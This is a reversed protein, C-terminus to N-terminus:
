FLITDKLRDQILYPKSKNPDLVDHILDYKTLKSSFEELNFDFVDLIMSKVRHDVKDGKSTIVRIKFDDDEDLEKTFYFYVEDTGISSYCHNFIYHSYYVMLRGCNLSHGYPFESSVSVESVPEPEEVYLSRNVKVWGREINKIKEGYKILDIINITEIDVDTLVESFWDVFEDRVKNLDLISLSTTLGNVVFFPGCDTVQIISNETKNIKSLVFESFLNVVGRRSNKNILRM